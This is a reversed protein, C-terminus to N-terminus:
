LLLGYKERLIKQAHINKSDLIITNKLKLERIFDGRRSTPIEFGTVDLLTSNFPTKLLFREQNKKSSLSDLVKLALGPQSSSSPIVAGWVLLASLPDSELRGESARIPLEVASNEPVQRELQDLQLTLIKKEQILPLLGQSEWTEFHHLLLDEDALLFLTEQKKDKLFDMFSESHKTFISTKLWFLPFFFFGDKSIKFDAFLRDKLHPLSTDIDALLNQQQLTGAWNRPLLILDAGPSAISSALIKNWDRTIITSFQINLEQEINKRLDEPFFAEDTLLVQIKQSASLSNKTLPETSSGQFYGFVFCMMFFLIWLIPARM